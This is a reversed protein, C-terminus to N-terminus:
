QDGVLRFSVKSSAQSPIVTKFGDGTYGGVIGNIELTPRAWVMELVSRGREGAAISLGIEGLFAAGDFDLTQWQAKIESPLEEVGDYFGPLAVSGDREHLAALCAALVHIPNRAASGYMGSHLDRDAATIIIEEG